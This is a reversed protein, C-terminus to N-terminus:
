LNANSKEGLIYMMVFNSDTALGALFRCISFLAVDTAFVTLVNGVLAMINSIVLIHLRGIKDALIGFILSGLVSGVFFMSQGLVSKWADQCVWNLQQGLTVNFILLM